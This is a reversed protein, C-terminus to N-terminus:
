DHTSGREGQARAGEHEGEGPRGAGAPIPATVRRGHHDDLRAPGADGRGHAHLGNWDPDARHDDLLGDALGTRRGARRGAADDHSVRSM